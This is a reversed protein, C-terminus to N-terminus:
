ISRILIVTISKTSRLFVFIRMVGLCILRFILLFASFFLLRGQSPKLKESANQGDIGPVQGYLM